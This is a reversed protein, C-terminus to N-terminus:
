KYQLFVVHPVRYGNLVVWKYLLLPVFVKLYHIEDKLSSTLFTKYILIDKLHSKYQGYTVQSYPYSKQFVTVKGNRSTSYTNQGNRM